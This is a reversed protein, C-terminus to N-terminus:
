SVVPVLQARHDLEHVLAKVVADRLHWARGTLQQCQQFGKRLAPLVPELHSAPGLALDQLVGESRPGPRGELNGHLTSGEYAVRSRSQAQLHVASTSARGRRPHHGHLHIRHLRANGTVEEIQCAERLGHLNADALDFVHQRAGDLREPSHRHAQDEHVVLAADEVGVQLHQFINSRHAPSTDFHRVVDSQWAGWQQKPSKREARGPVQRGVGHHLEELWVCLIPHSKSLIESRCTIWWWRWCAPLSERPVCVVHASTCATQSWRFTVHELSVSYSIGPMHPAM